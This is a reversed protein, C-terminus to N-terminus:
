VTASTKCAPRIESARQDSKAPGSTQKRQGAPRNESARQDSKRQDATITTPPTIKCQVQKM